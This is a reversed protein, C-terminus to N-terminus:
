GQMAKKVNQKYEYMREDAIHYIKEPREGALEDNTAYGYSISLGLGPKERNADQINAHFKEILMDIFGCDIKEIIAIFEDGGMRGVVGYESFTKDIVRAASCILEDGKTHGYTDNMKKLGNLDFNFIAYQANDTEALKDMYDSCYARNHIQTLEDTYARRVLLEKEKEEMMSRAARQCLDLILIELFLVLGVSAIGKVVITKYQTYRSMAYSLLEYMICFLVLVSGITSFKSVKDNKKDRLYIVLMFFALLVVFFLHFYKVMEAAHVVDLSHLLITGVTMIMQIMFLKVHIFGLIKSDAEKVFDKMYVIIPIPAIFLSMYEMLSKSYLPIAFIITVNYYCMTWLGICIAFISLLLVNIFRTTYVVTFVTVCTLTLGFMVLFCGLLLPLRNETLIYRQANKWESIWIEGITTFAQNETVYYELRLNKGRYEEPFDVLLYGAGTSKNNEYRDYGYEYELQGDVYMTLAAHQNNICLAPQRYEYDDPIVTEMVIVDKKNVPDFSFSALSVDEYYDDNISINWNNNLVVRNSVDDIDKSILGDVLHIVIFISFVAYVIWVYKLIKKYDIKKM